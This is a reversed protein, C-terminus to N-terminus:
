SILSTIALTKQRWKPGGRRDWPVSTRPALAIFGYRTGDGWCGVVEGRM